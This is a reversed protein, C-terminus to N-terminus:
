SKTPTDTYPDFGIHRRAKNRAKWRHERDLGTTSTEELFFALVHDDISLHSAQQFEQLSALRILMEMLSISTTIAGFPSRAAFSRASSASSQATPECATHHPASLSISQLQELMRNDVLPDDSGATTPKTRYDNNVSSHDSSEDGTDHDDFDDVFVEFALWEPDIHPPFSWVSHPEECDTDDAKMASSMAEGIYLSEEQIQQDVDQQLDECDPSVEETSCTSQVVADSTSATPRTSVDRKLLLVPNNDESDQGINLIRGTDAYFIKSLQFLPISERIGARAIGDFPCDQVHDDGHLRGDDLDEIIEMHYAYEVPTSLPNTLPSSVHAGVSGHEPAKLQSRYGVRRDFVHDLPTRCLRVRAKHLVEQWIPRKDGEEIGYPEQKQAGNRSLDPTYPVTTPSETSQDTHGLFLMYLSFTFCPGIQVPRTPDYAYQTDGFNLLTSAQLLRSPSVGPSLTSTLSEGSATIAMHLLPIDHDIRALLDKMSAIIRGLQTIVKDPPSACPSQEITLTVEDLEKSLSTIAIHLARAIPVASELFANGRGSKFEILDIAPSVVKIKSNLQRQLRKLDTRITKDDIKKMLRSCQTVAYTSTLALGSRMAMNLAQYGLRSLLADM